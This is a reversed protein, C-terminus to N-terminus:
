GARLKPNLYGYALDALLNAVLVVLASTFVVGQIMPVDRQNVADVALSGFGPMAFVFEVTVAAGLVHGAQLALVTVVPAAANKLAHKGVVSLPKLGRARATRVYSQSLADLLAGRTQRALEAGLLAAVAVAPLLLHSLWVGVGGDAISEYGTAPLVALRIAFVVVLVLAIVFPPLAMALSGAVGVVRDVRSGPRTAALAGLPVGVVVAMLLAVVALSATVPLREAVAGGVSQGTYLSTGLDGHLAATFWDWFREPLPLDLGLRERTDAIQEPTANEGAIAVAADGPLLDLLLFVFLSVLVIVPVALLVRQAMFRLM